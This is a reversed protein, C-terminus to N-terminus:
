MQKPNGHPNKGDHYRKCREIYDAQDEVLEGITEDTGIFERHERWDVEPFWAGSSVSEPREAVGDEIDQKRILGTEGGVEVSQQIHASAGCCRCIYLTTTPKLKVYVANRECWFPRDIVEHSYEYWYDSNKNPVREHECPDEDTTLGLLSKLKSVM